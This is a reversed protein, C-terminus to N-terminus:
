AGRAKGPNLLRRSELRAGRPAFDTLDEIKRNRADAWWSTFEFSSCTRARTGARRATGAAGERFHQERTTNSYDKTLTGNSIVFIQVYDFLGAGSWFSEREYRRIQNFAERIDIGRRKLEIHVLPLGNVLLTVDYRNKRAGGEPGYQSTVQLANNHVNDKDLLRINKHSGDDRHLVKIYDEQITRTKEVIGLNSNSLERGFFQRWEGDSFKIGNLAELRERLNAILAKESKVPLYDYGQAQLIGLLAKELAAESQYAGKDRREAVYESLVTAEGTEAAVSFKAPRGM